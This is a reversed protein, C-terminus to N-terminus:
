NEAELLPHLQPLRTSEGPNNKHRSQHIAVQEATCDLVLGHSHLFDIGLIAQTILRDVVIFNHPIELNGISVVAKVHGVIELPEGSATVLRLSAPQPIRSVSRLEKAIVDQRVLSVSSGSDLMMEMEIGSIKGVITAANTKVAAVTIV